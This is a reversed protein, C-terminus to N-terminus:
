LQIAKSKQLAIKAGKRDGLIIKVKAILQWNKRKLATQHIALANSKQALQIAQKYLTQEARISALQHWLIALRPQISIAREIAAVAHNYNGAQFQQQAETILAQVAPLARPHRNVTQPKIQALVMSGKPIKASIPPAKKIVSQHTSCAQLLIFLTLSTLRILKFM